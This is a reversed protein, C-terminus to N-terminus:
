LAIRHVEPYLCCVEIWCAQLSHGFDTTKLAELIDAETPGRASIIKKRGQFSVLYQFEPPEMFVCARPRPLFAASVNM